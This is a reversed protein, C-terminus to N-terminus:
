CLSTFLLTGATIKGYFKYFFVDINTKDYNTVSNLNKCVIAIKDGESYNIFLVILVM